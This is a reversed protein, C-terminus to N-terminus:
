SIDSLDAPRITNRATFRTPPQYRATAQQKASTVSPATEIVYVRYEPPWMTFWGRREPSQQQDALYHDLCTADWALKSAAASFAVAIDWRERVDVDDAAALEDPMLWFTVAWHVDEGPPDTVWTEAPTPREVLPPLNPPPWSPYSWHRTVGASWYGLRCGFSVLVLGARARAWDIAQDIGLETESEIVTRRSDGSFREIRANFRALLRAGGQGTPTQQEEIWAVDPEEM